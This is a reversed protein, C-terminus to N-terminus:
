RTTVPSSYHRQAPFALDLTPTRPLTSRGSGIPAIWQTFNQVFIEASFSRARARADMACLGSLRGVAAAIEAPSRFDCLVGSVGDVVTEAAGGLDAALVTAGAAMAEIPMIGFDEIAPFVYAVAHQYLTYLLEDSVRGLFITPVGAAEAQAQLRRHEPGAGALVVPLRMAAGVRIVDDLRKYSVLRSAGLLFERPLADFRARDLPDMLEAWEPHSQIRTVDVPPYVVVSSREWSTAVRQQVAKSNVAISHPENARRRDLRRLAPAVARVAAAQGRPDLEPNWLYRAPTHVYVYKEFGAKQQRFSVHHAFQHSSVIAWDYDQNARRRWSAPAVPTSLAKRGRLPTRAIVSEAVTHGHFRGPADDWLCVIDTGPFIQAIADVVKESGGTHEIWEHVIVGNGAAPQRNVTKNRGSATAKNASQSNKM